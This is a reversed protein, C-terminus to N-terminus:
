ARRVVPARVPLPVTCTSLPPTMKAGVAATVQVLLKVKLEASATRIVAVLWFTVRLPRSLPEPPRVLAPM